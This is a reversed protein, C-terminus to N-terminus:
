DGYRICYLDSGYFKLDFWIKKSRLGMALNVENFHLYQLYVVKM